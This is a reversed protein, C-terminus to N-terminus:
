LVDAIKTYNKVDPTMHDKLLVKELSSMVFEAQTNKLTRHTEGSSPTISNRFM